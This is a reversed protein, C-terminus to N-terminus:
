LRDGSTDQCVMSWETSKYYNSRHLAGAKVIAKQIECHLGPNKHAQKLYWRLGSFTQEIKTKYSSLLKIEDDESWYSSIVDVDGNLLKRRLESHSNFYSISLANENIDLAQFTSKAAIHGSRSTPYDLLGIKKDLFYEKTLAPKEKTAIFFAEYDPYTAIPQLNHAATANFANAANEKVLALDAIGYNIYRFTDYDSQGIILAVNGYQKKVIASECLFQAVNEGMQIDTVYVVLENQNGSLKNKCTTKQEIIPPISSINQNKELFNSSFEFVSIFFVLTILVWNKVEFSATMQSRYKDNENRM